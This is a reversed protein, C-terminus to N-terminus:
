SGIGLRWGARGGRYSPRTSGTTSGTTSWRAGCHGAYRERGRRRPPRVARRQAPTATRVREAVQAAGRRLAEALSIEGREAAGHLASLGPAGDLAGAPYNPGLM